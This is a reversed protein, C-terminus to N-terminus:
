PLKKRLSDGSPPFHYLSLGATSLPHPVDRVEDGGDGIQIFDPYNNQVIALHHRHYQIDTPLLLTDRRGIIRQKSVNPAHWYVEVALEDTKVVKPAELFGDGLAALFTVYGRANARYDVLGTDALQEARRQTAREVLARSRVDNWVRTAGGTQAASAQAIGIMLAWSTVLGVAPIRRM